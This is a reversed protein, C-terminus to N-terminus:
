IRRPSGPPPEMSPSSSCLNLSSVCDWYIFHPVSNWNPFLVSHILSLLKSSSRTIWYPLLHQSPRPWMVVETVLPIPAQILMIPLLPSGNEFPLWLFFYDRWWFYSLAIPLGVFGSSHALSCYVPSFSLDVLRGSSVDDSFFSLSNRNHCLLNCVWRADMIICAPDRAKSLPNLIQSM